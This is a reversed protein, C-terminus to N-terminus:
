VLCAAALAAMLAIIITAQPMAVSHLQKLQMCLAQAEWIPLLLQSGRGGEACVGGAVGAAGQRM